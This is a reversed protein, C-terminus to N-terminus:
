SAWDYKALTPRTSRGFSVYINPDTESLGTLQIFINTEKENIMFYYYKFNDKM